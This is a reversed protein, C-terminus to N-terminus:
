SGLFKVLTHVIGKEFLKLKHNIPRTTGTLFHLTSLIENNAKNFKLTNFLNILQDFFDTNYLLCHCIDINTLLHQKLVVSIIELLDEGDEYYIPKEIMKNFKKM